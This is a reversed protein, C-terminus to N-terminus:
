DATHNVDGTSEVPSPWERFSASFLLDFRHTQDPSNMGGAKSRAWVRGDITGLAARLPLPRETGAASQGDPRPRDARCRERLVQRRPSAGALLGAGGGPQAEATGAAGACHGAGRGALHGLGRPPLIVPMRHHVLAQKANADTTIITFTRLWTGDPQQWGEWLGALAMLAGDRLAVAYPQKRAGEQRWEYFGDAPILCRRKAFAERFSPKEAVGDARANMLKAAGSADKAWRPVLGWRLIGLSRQGTQPNRRLV